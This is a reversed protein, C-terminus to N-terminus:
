HVKREKGVRIAATRKGETEAPFDAPFSVGATM